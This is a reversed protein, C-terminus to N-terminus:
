EDPNLFGFALELNVKEMFGYGQWYQENIGAIQQTCSRWSFETTPWCLLNVHEFVSKLGGGFGEVGRNQVYM